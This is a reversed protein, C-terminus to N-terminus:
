KLGILLKVEYQGNLRFIGRFTIRPCGCAIENELNRGLPPLRTRALRQQHLSYKAVQDNEEDMGLNWRVVDAFQAVELSRFHGLM